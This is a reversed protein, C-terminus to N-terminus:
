QHLAARTYPPASTLQFEWGAEGALLALIGCPLPLPHACHPRSGGGPGKETRRAKTFPLEM